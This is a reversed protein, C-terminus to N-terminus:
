AWKGLLTMLAMGCVLGSMGLCTDAVSRRSMEGGEMWDHAWMEVIGFWVLIGASFADLSGIIFITAPDNGNFTNLALIGIAMGLPTVCAFGCGMLLKQALPIRDDYSHEEMKLGDDEASQPLIHRHNQAGQINKAATTGIAAIRSGLAIGEFMQHFMVVVALTVFFSDGAVVLTLGILLSHAVIGLELVLVKAVGASVSPDATSLEKTSTGPGFWGHQLIQAVAFEMLFSVLMGGMLIVAPTGEFSAVGDSPLCENRFLLCAHIFLHVFATSIIVGTGFQKLFVMARNSESPIFSAVLIPSFVGIASSILMLFIFLLRLPINYNRQIHECKNHKEVEGGECHEVGAHFHCHQEEPVDKLTAPTFKQPASGIPEVLTHWVINSNDLGHNMNFNEFIVVSPTLVILVKIAIANGGEGLHNPTWGRLFNEADTFQFDPLMRNIEDGSDWAGKVSSMLIGIPVAKLMVAVMEQSISPHSVEYEWSTKLEGAELDEMKVKDVTFAQGRIKEGIAVIQSFTLRNGRVGGNTPWVGEYEVARVVVATFDALTTLTMIADEHGEVIMALKKSFDWVTQLPDLYKSTIHPFALYDLFLGPQFLTYELVNQKQNVEQLYQRILEKGHMWAMDVTGKSGHESPAFRKVGASICADILNKQASGDQDALVQVFSLVTHVGALAGALDSKDLYNVRKWQVGPRNETPPAKGRGLILIEHKGNAVLADTVARAVQGSGGAVAVKVM